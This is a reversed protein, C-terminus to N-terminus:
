LAVPYIRDNQGRRGMAQIFGGQRRNLGVFMDQGLFWHPNILFFRGFKFLRDAVGPNAVHGAVRKTEARGQLLNM